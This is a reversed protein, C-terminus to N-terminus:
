CRLSYATRQPGQIQFRFDHPRGTTTSPQARRADRDRRIRGDRRPVGGLRARRRGVLEAEDDELFFLIADGIVYGDPNCAVFQQGQGDRLQKFTNVGLDSLLPM